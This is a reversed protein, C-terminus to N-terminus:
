ATERHSRGSLITDLPPMADLLSKTYAQRPHAFLDATRRHEVIKGECMVAVRDAFEAVARLDHSIHIYTLSRQSQLDALLKLILQQNALDLSSLAEDLILLRPELALARAIALRQRQGGSFERPTKKAWETRLGVQRMLELARERRDIKTLSHQIRLPEDIIEAATFRPSMAATPDQFVFQIKRRLQLLDSKAAQRVEKGEFWMKGSDPAELLAVCRGLSSKGAGSEGVVALTAGPSVALDVDDFARVLHRERSYSRCQVYAKSLGRVRLLPQEAPSM